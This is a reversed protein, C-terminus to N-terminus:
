CPVQFSTGPSESIGFKSVMMKLNWTLDRPLLPHITITYLHPPDLDVMLYLTKKPGHNKHHIILLELPSKKSHDAQSRPYIVWEQPPDFLQFRYYDPPIQNARLLANDPNTRPVVGHPFSCPFLVFFWSTFMLNQLCFDYLHQISTPQTNKRQRFTTNPRCTM